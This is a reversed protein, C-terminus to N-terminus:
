DKISEMDTEISSDQVNKMKEFEKICDDRIRQVFDNKKDENVGDWIHILFKEIEKQRKEEAAEAQDGSLGQPNIGLTINIGEDVWTLQSKLAIIKMAILPIAVLGTVIVITQWILYMENSEIIAMIPVISGALAIIAPPLAVIVSTWIQIATEISHKRKQLKRLPSYTTHHLMQEVIHPGQLELEELVSDVILNVQWDVYKTFPRKIFNMIKKLM